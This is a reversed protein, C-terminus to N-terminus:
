NNKSIIMLPLYLNESIDERARSFKYETKDLLIKNNKRSFHEKIEIVINKKSSYDKAVIIIDKRKRKWPDSSNGSLHNWVKLNNRCNNYRKDIKISIPGKKLSAKLSKSSIQKLKNLSSCRLFIKPNILMTTKNLNEIKTLKFGNTLMKFESQSITQSNNM